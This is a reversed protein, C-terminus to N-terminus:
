ISGKPKIIVSEKFYQPLYKRTMAYLRPFNSDLIYTKSWDKESRTSRGSAQIITTMTELAYSIPNATKRAMVIKDMLNPYPCKPIITFRSLGDKLDLGEYSGSFVGVGRLEGALFATIVKQKTTKSMHVYREDTLRKQLETALNYPLLIVGNEGAHTKECLKRIIEEMREYVEYRNKELNKAALNLEPFSYFVRNAIPIPSRIDIYDVDDFGLEKQIHPFTTGSMLVINKAIRFFSNCIHKTVFKPRITLCNTPVRRHPEISEECIFNDYDKTLNSVVFDLKKQLKIFPLKEKLNLNPNAIYIELMDAYKRLLSLVNVMSATVGKKWHIDTEWLRITTLERLVAPLSQYEDVIITDVDYILYDSEERKRVKNLLIYSYPNFITTAYTYCNSRAKEYPCAEKCKFDIKLRKLETGEECTAQAESCPYHAKGKLSNLDPFDNIYQDILLNQPTVIATLLGKKYNYEALAKACFSKGAGVPMSLVKCKGNDWHKELWRVAEYQVKRPSYGHESCVSELIKEM